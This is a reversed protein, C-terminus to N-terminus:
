AGVSLGVKERTCAKSQMYAGGSIPGGFPRVFM